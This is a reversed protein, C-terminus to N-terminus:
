RMYLLKLELLRSPHKLKRIASKEIQRVRERTIQLQRGIEELTHERYVGIGFRMKIVKEERETLTKLVRQIYESIEGKEFESFPSPSNKDGIFDELESDDEGVPTQLEITDQIARFVDEVKKTTVELKAAIEEHAPERGQKQTLDRSTKIVKNYFEMMHVPIRITKTQEMLARTVAQRIWWTAYTSFKFGKEYKFREVAKMLGINGEQILDLLPLGRKVYNKAVNVVLRLNRTILENKTNIELDKARSIERWLKKLTVSDAGTEEKIRLCEDNAEQMLKNVPVEKKGITEKGKDKMSSYKRLEKEASKLAIIYEDLMDYTLKVAEDAKQLCDFCEKNEKIGAEIRNYLPLSSLLKRVTSRAEEYKRALRTEEDSSLISINGMSHFYAQVLDETTEYEGYDTSINDAEAIDDDSHTKLNDLRAQAFDIFTRSVENSELLADEYERSLSIYNELEDLLDTDVDRSSADVSNIISLVKILHPNEGKDGPADHQSTM